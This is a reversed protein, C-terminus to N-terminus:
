RGSRGHTGDHSPVTWAARSPACPRRRSARGTPSGRRVCTSARTRRASSFSCTARRCRRISSRRRSGTSASGTPKTSARRSRSGCRRRGPVAHAAQVAGGDLRSRDRLRDDRRDFALRGAPLRLRLLGGHGCRNPPLARHDRASAGVPIPRRGAKRLVDPLVSEVGFSIARLGAAHLADLLGVDLRDLRTECEFRLDLHRSRIADALAM